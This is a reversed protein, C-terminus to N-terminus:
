FCRDLVVLAVVLLFGLALCGDGKPSRRRRRGQWFPNRWPNRPGKGRWPNRYAM